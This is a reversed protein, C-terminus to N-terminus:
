PVQAGERFLGTQGPCNERAKSSVTNERAFIPAHLLPHLADIFIMLSANSVKPAYHM